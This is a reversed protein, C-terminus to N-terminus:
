APNPPGYAALFVSTAGEALAEIGAPDPRNQAGLILAVMTPEKCLGLFHWAAQRPDPAHLAGRRHQEVIYDALGRASYAPGAEYFGRAIDPFRESAGIVMRVLALHEPRTMKEILGAAFRTLTARVDGAAPDLRQLREASEQKAEDVLAEFLAEKSDFYVYLTGKSVKAERAIEGMSAAAFGRALFCRRAGELIQQRKLSEVAGASGAGSDMVGASGAGPDTVDATGAGPDPAADPGAAEHGAAEPGAQPPVSRATQM